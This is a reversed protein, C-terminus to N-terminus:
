RLPGYRQELQSPQIVAVLQVLRASYEPAEVGADVEEKNYNWARIEMSMDIVHSRDLLGVTKSSLKELEEGIKIFVDPGTEITPDEKSKGYNIMVKLFSIPERTPDEKLEDETPLKTKVNWGLERLLDAHENPILVTFKRRSDKFRDEEGTFNPRGWFKADILTINAVKKQSNVPLDEVIVTTTIPEV